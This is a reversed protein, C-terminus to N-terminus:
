TMIKTTERCGCHQSNQRHSGTAAGNLPETGLGAYDLIAVSSLIIKRQYHYTIRKLNKNSIRRFDNHMDGTIYIM